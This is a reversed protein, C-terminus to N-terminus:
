TITLRVRSKKVDVPDTVSERKGKLNKQCQRKKVSLVFFFSYINKIIDWTSFLYHVSDGRRTNVELDQKTGRQESSVEQIIDAPWRRKKKM